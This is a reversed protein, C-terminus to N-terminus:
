YIDPPPKDLDFVRSFDFHSSANKSLLANELTAIYQAAHHLNQQLEHNQTVLERMKSEAVSFGKTMCRLKSKLEAVEVDKERLSQKFDIDGRISYM